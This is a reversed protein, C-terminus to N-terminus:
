EARLREPPGPDKFVLKGDCVRCVWDGQANHKPDPVHGEMPVPEKAPALYKPRQGTHIWGMLWQREM